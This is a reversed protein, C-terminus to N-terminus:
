ESVLEKSLYKSLMESSELCCPLTLSSSTCFKARSKIILLKYDSTPSVCVYYICILNYNCDSINFLKHWTVHSLGTRGKIMKELLFFVNAILLINSIWLIEKQSPPITKRVSQRSWWRFLLTLPRWVETLSCVRTFELFLLLLGV